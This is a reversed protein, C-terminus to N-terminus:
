QFIIEVMGGFHYKQRLLGFFQERLNPEFISDDFSVFGYYESPLVILISANPFVSAFFIAKEALFHASIDVEERQHVSNGAFACQVSEFVIDGFSDRQREFVIDRLNDQQSRRSAQRLRWSIYQVISDLVSRLPKIGEGNERKQETGIEGISD